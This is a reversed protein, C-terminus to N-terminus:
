GNLHWPSALAPAPSAQLSEGWLQWPPGFASSQGRSEVQRALRELKRGLMCTGTARCHCVLPLVHEQPWPGKTAVAKTSPQSGRPSSRFDSYPSVRLCVGRGLRHHQGKLDRPLWWSPHPGSSEPSTHSVCSAGNQDQGKIHYDDCCLLNAEKLFLVLICRFTESFFVM